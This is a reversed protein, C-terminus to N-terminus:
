FDGDLLSNVAPAPVDVITDEVHAVAATFARDLDAKLAPDAEIVAKVKHYGDYIKIWNDRDIPHFVKDAEVLVAQLLYEGPLMEPSAGMMSLMGAVAHVTETAIQKLMLSLAELMPDPNAIVERIVEANIEQM